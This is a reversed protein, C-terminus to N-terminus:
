RQLEKIIKYEEIVAAAHEFPDRVELTYGSLVCQVKVQELKKYEPNASAVFGFKKYQLHGLAKGLEFLSIPQDTYKDFYVSFIFNGEEIYKNLYTFEWYTQNVTDTDENYPNYLVLDSLDLTSCRLAQMFNFIWVTDSMGGALFCAIESPKKEYKTRAEITKFADKPEIYEGRYM